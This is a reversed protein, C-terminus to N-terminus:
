AKRATIWAWGRCIGRFLDDNTRVVFTDWHSMTSMLAELLRQLYHGTLNRFALRATPDHRDATRLILFIVAMDELAEHANGAARVRVDDDDGGRAAHM